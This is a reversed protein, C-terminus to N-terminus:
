MKGLILRGELRTRDRDVCGCGRPLDKGVSSVSLQYIDAMISEEGLLILEWGLKGDIAPVLRGAGDSSGAKSGNDEDGPNGRGDLLCAREDGESRSAAKV